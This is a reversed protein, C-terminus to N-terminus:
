APIMELRCDLTFQRIRWTGDDDIFTDDILVQHLTLNSVAAVMDGMLTASFLKDNIAAQMSDITAASKDTAKHTTARVNVLCRALTSRPPADPDTNAQDCHVLVYAGKDATLAADSWRIIQASSTLLGTLDAHARLVSIFADEITRKYSRTIAM